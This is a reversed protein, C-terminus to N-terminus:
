QIMIKRTIVSNNTTIRVLYIGRYADDLNIDTFIPSQVNNFEKSFIINGSVSILDIYVQDDVPGNIEIIFNGNNPNPYIQINSVDAIYPEDEINSLRFDNLTISFIGTVGGYSGDVQLWLTDGTEYGILSPITAAYDLNGVYDDNAAL